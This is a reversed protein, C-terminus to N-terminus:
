CIRSLVTKFHQDWDPPSFKQGTPPTDQGARGATIRGNIAKTWAVADGPPLYVAIDGLLARTVALDTALVPVGLSAAELAPFGYGEARSPQLLGFSHQVLAAVAADSLGPLEHVHNPKQDLAYFVQENRWGRSGCILLHADHIDPWIDLLLAHDKRPEITGVIVFTPANGWPGKPVAGPVPVDVGLRAMVPTAATGPVHRAFRDQTDASNFLVADAHTAVADLFVRFRAPMEPRVWEPHDLPITDHVMVAIHAGRISRDARVLGNTLKTHGVNLYRVHAPLHRRLMRALRLPLCRDVAIRRLDAEVRARQADLGPRLRAYRDPPGWNGQDLLRAFAACGGPDLLIYGLSSRVLGYLRGAQGLHALYAREVRDVGTMARGARRVLRTLDLLFTRDPPTIGMATGGGHM